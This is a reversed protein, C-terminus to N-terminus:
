VLFMCYWDWRRTGFHPRVSINGGLSFHQILGQGRVCIQESGSRACM